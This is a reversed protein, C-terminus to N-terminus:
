FGSKLVQGNRLNTHQNNELTMGGNVLVYKFGTTYQHPKDFTSMDKVEKEDFV